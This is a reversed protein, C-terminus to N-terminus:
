IFSTHISSSPFLAAVYFTKAWSPSEVSLQAVQKCSNNLQSMWRKEMRHPPHPSIKYAYVSVYVCTYSAAMEDLEKALSAFTGRCLSGCTYDRVTLTM